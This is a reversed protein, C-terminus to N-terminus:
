NVKVDITKPKAEEAKPLTITLIGNKYQAEIKDTQVYSPLTFSRVFSGYARENRHYNRKNEEQESKREGRMTLVNGQVSIKVDNKTLGPLEAEVIYADEQEVIDVAPNWFTGYSGDDATGGRLASDFMRNFERHMQSIDPLIDSLGNWPALERMPTWRILSM